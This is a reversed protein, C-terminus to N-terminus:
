HMIKPVDFSRFYLTRIFEVGFMGIQAEEKDAKPRSFFVGVPALYILHLLYFHM